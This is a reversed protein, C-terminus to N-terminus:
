GVIKYINFFTNYYLDKNYYELLYISGEVPLKIKTESQMTVINWIIIKGENACTGFINGSLKAIYNLCANHENSTKICAYDELNWFKLLEDNSVSALRKVDSYVIFNCVYSSHGKMKRILSKSPIDWVFMDPSFGTSILVDTNLIDEAYFNKIQTPISVVCQHSIIDWIKITLDSSSSIIYNNNKKSQNINIVTKTHGKLVGLNNFPPVSNWLKILNDDSCSIFINKDIIKIIKYIISDHAKFKKLVERSIIKRVEIEGLTAISITDGDLLAFSRNKLAEAVEVNHQYM